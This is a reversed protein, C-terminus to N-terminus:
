HVIGNLFRTAKYVIKDTLGYAHDTNFFHSAQWLLMDSDDDLIIYNELGKGGSWERIELGRFGHSSSGTMGIIEGEFGVVDFLKTIEEQTYLKRWTSSIVVKAGTEKILRNLRSMLAENITSGYRDPDTVVDRTKEVSCNLVGDIDLFIVKM